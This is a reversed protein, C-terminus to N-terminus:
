VYNSIYASASLQYLSTLLASTCKLNLYQAVAHHLLRDFPALGPALYIGDPTDGFTELLAREIGSM